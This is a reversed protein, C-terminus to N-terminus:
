VCFSLQIIHIVSYRAHKQSEHQCGDCCEDHRAASNVPCELARLVLYGIIGVAINRIADRRIHSSHALRLEEYAASFIAGLVRRDITRPLLLEQRIHLQIKEFPSHELIEQYVLYHYYAKLAAIKRKVTSPKYREMLQEIYQEMETRTVEVPHPHRLLFQELDIRYAKLTKDDLNKQLKCYSFYAIFISNETM